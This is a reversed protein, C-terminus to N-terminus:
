SLPLDINGLLFDVINMHIIGDHSFNVKDLSLVIKPSADKIPSFADFEREITGKNILYYSIQV